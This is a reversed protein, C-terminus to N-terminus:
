VPSVPPHKVFPTWGCLNADPYSWLGLSVSPSTYLETICREGTHILGLLVRVDDVMWSSSSFNLGKWCACARGTKVCGQRALNVLCETDKHIVCENMRHLKAIHYAVVQKGASDKFPM